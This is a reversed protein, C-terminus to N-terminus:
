QQTTTATGWVHKTFWDYNQQMAARNAKPKTLGHGFGKFVV